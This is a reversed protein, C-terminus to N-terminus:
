VFYITCVREYMGKLLKAPIYPLGFDDYCIDSDIVGLMHMDQGQLMIDSCLTITLLGKAIM